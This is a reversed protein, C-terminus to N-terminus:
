KSGFGSFMTPITRLAILIDLWASFNKIYYFDYSLKQDVADLDTVHGQHVQAWGSIGPRVIHRYVYFPLESEYWHSLAVAEPRPGILSMEGRLVNFIQPLEDLRVKRLFRGIRTIRGDNARTMAEERVAEEDGIVDRSRMTRFKYMAFIRGCHGMREQRFIAGGPSDLQVLIAIILMPLALFPMMLLCAVIDVTRKVKVYALNPLLSGFSNESLHEISVRGTLSERLQKTHYVPRGSVAAQALMREWEPAHDFRLDAVIAARPPAPVEPAAMVVWDVGPIELLPQIDGMPVIWFRPTVYREIVFSLLYSVALALAFSAGLHLRSYDFRFVFMGLVVAGYSAAYSPLIYGFSRTGPFATVRRFLFLGGLVGITAGVVSNPLAVETDAPLVGPMRVLAPLLVAVVLGVLAQARL